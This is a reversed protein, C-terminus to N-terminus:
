GTLSQTGDNACAVPIGLTEADSRVHAAIWAAITAGTTECIRELAARIEPDLRTGLAKRTRESSPTGSRAKPTRRKRKTTSM